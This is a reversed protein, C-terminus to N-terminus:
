QKSSTLLAEAFNSENTVARYYCKAFTFDSRWGATNMNEHIPVSAAKAASTPASRTSQPKFVPTNIGADKM